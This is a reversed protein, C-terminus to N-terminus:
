SKCLNQVRSPRLEVELQRLLGDVHNSADNAIKSTEQIMFSVSDPPQSGYTRHVNRDSGYPTLNTLLINLIKIESYARAMESFLKPDTLAALQTKEAEWYEVPVILYPQNQFYPTSNDAFAKLTGSNSWLECYLSKMLENKLHTESLHTAYLGAPVGLFAGLFTAIITPWLDNGRQPDRLWHWLRNMLCPNRELGDADPIERHPHLSGALTDSHSQM